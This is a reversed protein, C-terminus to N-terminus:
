AENSAEVKGGCDEGHSEVYIFEAIKHEAEIRRAREEDLQSQVIDIHAAQKNVMAQLKQAEAMWDKGAIIITKDSV